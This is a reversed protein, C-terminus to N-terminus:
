VCTTRRALWTPSVEPRSHQRGAARRGADLESCREDRGGHARREYYKREEPHEGPDWVDFSM